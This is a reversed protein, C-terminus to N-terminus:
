SLTRVTILVIFHAGGGEGSEHYDEQTPFKLQAEINYDIFM